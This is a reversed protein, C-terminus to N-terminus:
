FAWLQTLVACAGTAIITLIFAYGLVSNAAEPKDMSAAASLLKSPSIAGALGGGVGNAAVLTLTSAQMSEAAAVQLKTLMAASSSASGGIFGAILGLFPTAAPYATGFIATAQHALTLIMNSQEFIQWEANKGSHNMVYAIAFFVATAAFPRWARKAGKSFIPIINEKPVRLLPLCCVTSVFVWFYAQWLFRIREPSGPIIEIPMSWTTFVTKFFPLIPSNMILSLVLLVIWPSAARCLSFNQMSQLDKETLQSQDQVKGGTLKVFVLLVIVVVIGALLATVTVLGMQALAMAAFGSSLGALLAPWFGKLMLKFGGAVHLCLFAICTSLVPMFAALAIGSETLGAGAFTAMIVAPIGLLAYMCFALYGLCPLLIATSVSYGLALLIPPFIAMSAAGLGTLLTGIGVNILLVQVAKQEPALSKVTAIVRALAGSEGMVTVQIISTALVLGVPLSGVIGSLIIQPLIQPATDFFFVAICLTYVLGILGAIEASLKCFILLVLVLLLPSLALLSPLLM